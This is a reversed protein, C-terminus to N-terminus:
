SEDIEPPFGDLPVFMPRKTHFACFNLAVNASPREDHGIQVSRLCTAACDWFEYPNNAHALCRTMEQPLKIM